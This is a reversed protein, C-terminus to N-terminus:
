TRTIYENNNWINRNESRGKSLYARVHPSEVITAYILDLVEQLSRKEWLICFQTVSPDPIERSM